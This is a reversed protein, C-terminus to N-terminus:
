GSGNLWIGSGSLGLICLSRLIKATPRLFDLNNESFRSSKMGISLRIFILTRLSPIEFPCTFKTPAENRAGGREYGESRETVKSAVCHIKKGM